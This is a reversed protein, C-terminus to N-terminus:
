QAAEVVDDRWIVTIETGRNADSDIKISARIQRARETMNGLGFGGQKVRSMDFGHGNDIVHMTIEDPRCHLIVKAKTAGSHKVTNNLAEQAIRYLAIKIDPYIKTAGDIEVTVPLGSRGAVSEALQKILDSLEADALAAPRLEFLLTRMEALAGRTLQRLEQLRKLGEEKNREWLRPLIDSILSASFITQSVADHLDRALRAREEVATKEKLQEAMLDESKKLQTRDIGILLIEKLNNSEDFIPKYTWIIWAKEGNRLVNETENHLYNEPHAAIGDIMVQRDAVASPTDPLITGVLNHGLFEDEKYGFFDRAFNNVFTINGTTDTEMIISSANDVIHRYKIESERLTEQAIRRKKMEQQLFWASFLLAIGVAALALPWWGNFGLLFALGNFVLVIGIIMRFPVPSRYAPDLNYVISSIIFIVGLGTIFAAPWNNSDIWHQGYFLLLVAVLVPLLIVFVLRGPQNRRNRRRMEKQARRWEKVTPYEASTEKSQKIEKSDEDPMNVEM